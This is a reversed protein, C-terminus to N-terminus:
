IKINSIEFWEPGGDEEGVRAQVVKHHDWRYPATRLLYVRSRTSYPGAAKELASLVSKVTDAPIGAGTLIEKRTKNM